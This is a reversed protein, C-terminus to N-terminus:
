ESGQGDQNMSPPHSIRDPGGDLVPMHNINRHASTGSRPTIMSSFSRRPRLSQSRLDPVHGNGLTARSTARGVRATPFSPLQEQTRKSHFIMQQLLFHALDGDGAPLEYWLCEAM